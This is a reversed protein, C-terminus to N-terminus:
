ALLGLIDFVFNYSSFVLNFISLVVLTFHTSSLSSLLDVMTGLFMLLFLFKKLPQNDLESDVKHMDEKNLKADVM